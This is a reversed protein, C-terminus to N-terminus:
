RVCFPAPLRLRSTCCADYPHSFLSSLSPSTSTLCFTSTHSVGPFGRSSARIYKQFEAPKIKRPDSTLHTTTVSVHRCCPWPCFRASPTWSVNTCANTHVNWRFSPFFPLHEFGDRGEPVRHCKSGARSRRKQRGGLWLRGIPHHCHPLPRLHYPAFWRRIWCRM